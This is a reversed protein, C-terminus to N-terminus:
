AGAPLTIGRLVAIAGPRTLYSDFRVYGRVAVSGKKFGDGLRSVEITIGTRLGVTLASFDGVIAVHENTGAGLNSPLFSSVYEDLQQYARPVGLPNNLTDQLCNLETWLGPTMVVSTPEHHAAKIAGMARVFPRYDVLEGVTNNAEIIHDEAAGMNILGLPQDTTGDGALAGQDFALALQAAFANQITADLDICDEVAEISLTSYLWASKAALEAADFSWAGDTLDRGLAEPEWQVAPEGTMRAVKASPSDVPMLQAGARFIVSQERALDVIGASAYGPIAAPVGSTMLAVVDARTGRWDGLALGRVLGNLSVDNPMAIADAISEGRALTDGSQPPRGTGHVLAHANAQSQRMGADITEDCEAIQGELSQAILVANDAREADGDRRAAVENERAQALMAGLTVKSQEAKHMQLVSAKKM